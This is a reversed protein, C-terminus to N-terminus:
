LFICQLSQRVICFSYSWTLWWSSLFFEVHKLMYNYRTQGCWDVLMACLGQVLLVVVCQQPWRKVLVVTRVGASIICFFCPWNEMLYHVSLLAYWTNFLYLVLCVKIWTIRFRPRLKPFWSWLWSSSIRGWSQGKWCIAREPAADQSHFFYCLKWFFYCGIILIHLTGHLKSSLSTQEM